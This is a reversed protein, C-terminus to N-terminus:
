RNVVLRVVASDEKTGSQEWLLMGAIAVETRRPLYTDIIKQCYDIAHGSVAAIQPTTAGAEALRVIGTRRLDRRQLGTLKAAAMAKDWSRAMNRRSWALGHPSAVLRDDPKAEALRQQLLPRLRVHVPIDLLTDTKSQRVAIFMRGDRESVRDATMSLVDSPRQVTFLLLMFALRLSPRAVNMFQQEEHISWIVTRAKTELRGPRSAANASVFELRMALRLLIRFLALVMNCKSPHDQLGDKITEITSAHIDRARWAGYGQKIQNLYNDYLAKTGPKLRRYQPGAKYRAILGAITDPPVEAQTEGKVRAEAEARDHGLFIRTRADYFYELISGDARKKRSVNVGTRRFRPM